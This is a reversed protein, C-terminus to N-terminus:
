GPSDSAPLPGAKRLIVRAQRLHGFFRPGRVLYRVWLRRPDQALRYLWELSMRQMWRPARREGGTLFNLSGGVCLALGRAIGRQRLLAAVLEQQPSGVALFCFRFPSAQEIFGLCDEVAQPDRIFGMPPNHHRVNRLGFRAELQAAQEASGGILVIRDDPAIVRRFLADTLDSGTCVPLQLGKVLRLLQAAFRSDLLAFDASAYRAQFAADEHCRIMHDVNPTVVFAFRSTGFRAAVRLFGELDFDDLQHVCPQRLGGTLNASM